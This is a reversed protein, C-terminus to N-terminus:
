LLIPYWGGGEATPNCNDSGRSGNGRTLGTLPCFALPIEIRLSHEHTANPMMLVNWQDIGDIPPVGDAIHINDSSDVGVLKTLTVYRM